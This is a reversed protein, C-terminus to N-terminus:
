ANIYYPEWLTFFFPIWRNLGRLDLRWDLRGVHFNLIYLHSWDLKGTTKVTSYEQKPFKACGPKLGKGLFGRWLMLDFEVKVTFCYCKADLERLALYHLKSITV